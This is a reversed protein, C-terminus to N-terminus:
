YTFSLQSGLEPSHRLAAAHCSRETSEPAFLCISASRCEGVEVNQLFWIFLWVQYFSFSASELYKWTVQLMQFVQSETNDSCWQCSFSFFLSSSNLKKRCIFWFAPTWMNKNKQTITFTQSFEVHVELSSCASSSTVSASPLSLVM